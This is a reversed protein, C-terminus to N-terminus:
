TAWPQKIITNISVPIRYYTTTSSSSAVSYGINVLEGATISGEVSVGNQVAVELQGSGVLQVEYSSRIMASPSNGNYTHPGSGYARSWTDPIELFSPFTDTTVLAVFGYDVGMGYSKCGSNPYVLRSYEVLRTSAASAFLTADNISHFVSQAKSFAEEESFDLKEMLLSVYDAQSLIQWSEEVIPRDNNNTPVEVAYASMGCMMACVCILTILRQLKKITEELDSWTNIGKLYACVKYFFFLM